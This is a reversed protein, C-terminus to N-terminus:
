LNLYHKISKVVNKMLFAITLPGIGGPVPSIFNVKEICDEFDCDGSIKGFEDRSIGIDVLIAEKKIMNQKIFKSMGVGSFIIDAQTMLDSLKKTKSHAIQVTADLRLLMNLLPKGVINSRNIILCNKGAIEINNQQLIYVCGCATCPLFPIESYNFGLTLKGANESHLGDLDKSPLITNCIKLTNLHTPLPMQVIMGCLDIDNNAKEIASLLEIESIHSPFQILEANIGINKAVEIKKSVYILSAPNDGILFIAFRPIKNFEKKIEAIENALNFYIKDALTKGNLIKKEKLKFFSKWM